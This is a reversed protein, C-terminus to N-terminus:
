LITRGFNSCLYFAMSKDKLQVRNYCMPRYNGSKTKSAKTRIQLLNNPGTITELEKNQAYYARIEASIFGYDEALHQYHNPHTDQNVIINGVYSNKRTFAIYLVQNLKKAVKTEEYEFSEDIIGSLCHGLSTIAITEGVTFSKIEGDVLDILDSSNKIELAMEILNGREGKNREPKQVSSFDYTDLKQVVEIMSLKPSVM